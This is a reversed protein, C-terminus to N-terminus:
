ELRAERERMVAEPAIGPPLKMSTLKVQKLAAAQQAKRQDNQQQQQPTTQSGESTSGRAAQPDSSHTPGVSSTSLQLNTATSIPTPVSVAVSQSSSMAQKVQVVCAHM